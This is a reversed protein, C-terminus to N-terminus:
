VVFEITVSGLAGFDGLAIQGPEVAVIDACSGTTVVEGAALGQGSSAADNALWALANLPHGLVRDGSGTSVLDGNVTITISHGALDVDRWDTVPAGMVFQGSCGNDAILQLAGRKTWDTYRSDIIEFAPLLVEVAEAVSDRDYPASLAPLARGLRFAYEIEIRCMTTFDGVSLTAPSDHCRVEILRGRFPQETALLEQAFKSTAGVKWGATPGLGQVVKDQIAYAEEPTQPRCDEPLGALPKKHRRATGILAAAKNMTAEDM